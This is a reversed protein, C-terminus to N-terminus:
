LTYAALSQQVAVIADGKKFEIKRGSPTISTYITLESDADFSGANEVSFEYISRYPISHYEKKRGTIGQKDVLILRKDTFVVLDRILKFAIDITEEKALIPAFEKELEDKDITSANGMLGSLLGM